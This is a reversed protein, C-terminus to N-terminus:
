VVIQAKIKRVLSELEGVRRRLVDNQESLVAREQQAVRLEDEVKAVKEVHVAEMAERDKRIIDDLIAMIGDTASKMYQEMPVKLGDSVESRLDFITTRSVAEAKKARAAM